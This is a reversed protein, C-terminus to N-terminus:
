VSSTTLPCVSSTVLLTVSLPRGLLTAMLL